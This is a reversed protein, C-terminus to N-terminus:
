RLWYGFSIRPANPAGVCHWLYKSPIQSVEFKRVTWGKYDWDTVITNNSRDVYKFYSGNDEPSYALYVRSGPMNGNTHWGMYGGKPYLFNGTPRVLKQQTNDELFEILTLSIKMPPFSIISLNDCRTSQLSIDGWTVSNLNWDQIFEDTIGPSSTDYPDLGINPDKTNPNTYRGPRALVNNAYETLPSEIEIPLTLKILSM